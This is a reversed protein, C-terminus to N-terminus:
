WSPGEWQSIREQSGNGDQRGSGDQRDLQQQNQSSNEAKPCCYSLNAKLYSAPVAGIAPATKKNNCGYRTTNSELSKDKVNIPQYDARITTNITYPADKLNLQPLDTAREQKSQEYDVQYTSRIKDRCLEELLAQQLNNDGEEYPKSRFRWELFEKSPHPKNKRQGSATGPKGITERNVQKWGFETSYGTVETETKSYFASTNPRASPAPTGSAGTYDRKNSTEYFYRPDQSSSYDEELLNEPVSYVSMISKIDASQLARNGQKKANMKPPQNQVLITAIGM